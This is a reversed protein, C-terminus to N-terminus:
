NRAEEVLSRLTATPTALVASVLEACLTETTETRALIVASQTVTAASQGRTAGGYHRAYEQVITEALERPSSTPRANLATLIAAYPWGTLPEIEQSAVFYDFFPALERGGEIMAMLCADMGILDLRAGTVAQAESFAQRLGASDLFDKSSDDFAIPRTQEASLVRGTSRFIPQHSRHTDAFTRVTAYADVDLWGTGHNWIVLAYHEAPYFAVSRVIFEALTAPDGTNVQRLPRVASAALGRGQRVEVLYAGESTDFLCPVAVHDTTGVTAMEALDRYGAETMAAMLKVKGAQTSFVKGNDGAMYVMFTWPRRRPPTPPM